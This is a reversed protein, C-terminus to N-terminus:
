DNQDYQSMAWRAGLLMMPITLLWSILQGSFAGADQPQGARSSLVFGLLGIVMFILGLIVIHIRPAHPASLATVYGVAVYTGLGLLFGVFKIWGPVEATTMHTMDMGAAIFLVLIVVATVCGSGCGTLCGNRLAGVDIDPKDDDMM